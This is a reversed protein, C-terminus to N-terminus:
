DKQHLDALAQLYIRRRLTLRRTRLMEPMDGEPDFLQSQYCNLEGLSQFFKAHAPNLDDSRVFIQCDVRAM